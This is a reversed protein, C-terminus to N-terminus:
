KSGRLVDPFVNVAFRVSSADRPKGGARKVSSVFSFASSKTATVAVLEFWKLSDTSATALTCFCMGFFRMM